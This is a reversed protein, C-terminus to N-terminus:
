PFINELFEFNDCSLEVELQTQLLLNILGGGVGWGGGYCSKLCKWAICSATVKTNGLKFFYPPPSLPGKKEQEEKL